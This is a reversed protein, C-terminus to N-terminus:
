EDEDDWTTPGEVSDDVDVLSGEYGASSSTAWIAGDGVFPRTPGYTFSYANGKDSGCEDFDGFEAESVILVYTGAELNDKNLTIDTSSDTKNAIEFGIISRSECEFGGTSSTNSTELFIEGLPFEAKLTATLNGGVWDIKFWDLDRFNRKKRGEKVVYTSITGCVPEGPEISGFERPEYNCGGNVTDPEDTRCEEGDAFCFPEPNPLLEEPIKTFLGQFAGASDNEVGGPKTLEVHLVGDEGVSGEITAATETSAAKFSCTDDKDNIFGILLEETIGGNSDFISTMQLTDTESDVDFTFAQNGSCDKKITGDTIRFLSCIPGKLAAWSGTLIDACSETEDSSSSTTTTGTGKYETLMSMSGQLERRRMQGKVTQFNRRQGDVSKATVVALALVTTTYKM